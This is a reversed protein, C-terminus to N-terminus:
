SKYDLHRIIELRSFILYTIQTKAELLKIKKESLGVKEFIKWFGAKPRVMSHRNLFLKTQGM